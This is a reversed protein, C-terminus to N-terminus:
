VSSGLGKHLDHQLKLQIRQMGLHLMEVHNYSNRPDFSGDIINKQFVVLRFWANIINLVHKM